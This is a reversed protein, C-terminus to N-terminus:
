SKSRSRKSTTHERKKADFKPLITKGDDIKKLEDIIKNADFIEDENDYPCEMPNGSIDFKSWVSNKLDPLESYPNATINTMTPYGFVLPSNAIWCVVAKKGLAAAAHNAFSDMLLLLDAREILSCCVRFDGTFPITHEYQPQDQRKIHVITHSDKFEEIVKQVVSKPIDRAWSYKHGQNEAGGNTQIVFLPKDTQGLAISYMNKERNTLYIKPMEGSWKIGNAKCWIEPLPANKYIFDSQAYPDNLCLISHKDEIYDQYFYQLQDFRLVKHVNPNGYFVFDYHSIVIIKRQPYQKQLAEIVATAAISKGIGGNIQLISYM